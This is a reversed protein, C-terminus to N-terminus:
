KVLVKKSNLFAALVIQLEISLNLKQQSKDMHKDPVALFRLVFRGIVSDSVLPTRFARLRVYNVVDYKTMKEVYNTHLISKYQMDALRLTCTNSVSGEGYNSTSPQPVYGPPGFFASGTKIEPYSGYIYV